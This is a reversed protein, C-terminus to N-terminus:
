PRQGASQRQTRRDGGALHDDWRNEAGLVPQDAARQGDQLSEPGHQSARRRWLYLGHSPGSRGGQQPEAFRQRQRCLQFLRHQQPLQGAAGLRRQRHPRHEGADHEDCDTRRGDVYHGGFQPNFPRLDHKQHHAPLLRVLVLPPEPLSRPGSRREHQLDVGM